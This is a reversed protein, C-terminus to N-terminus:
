YALPLCRELYTRARNWEIYISNDNPILAVPVENLDTRVYYRGSDSRFLIMQLNAAMPVIHFDRWHLGVTDFYNTLYYCDRLHMLALLPMLTEAHAFRLNVAPANGAIFRDTTDILDSLLPSAIQAPLASLTSASHTLYQRLNFVQWLANYEQQTLFRTIDIYMDMAQLGAITSYEAMAIDLADDGFPYKEGLVRKLPELTLTERMFKKITESVTESKILAKYEDNLDFFRLLPSYQRGSSTNIEVNNDLRAIQHTFEYMSMICRPSYTSIASISGRNFLQPYSAYMRSAIGRQEAMGLSDLAGWRGASQEAVLQAVALLERGKPTITGAEAAKKLADTITASHKPSAPFRAGHRGVHNIMVPTLTDPHEIPNAPVPYPKASGQCDEWPYTTHTPDAASSATVSIILLLLPLLRRM